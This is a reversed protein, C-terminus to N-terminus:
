DRNELGSGSSKWELLEENDERPQTSGTGSGKSILFHPLSPFPVRSRLIQLWFSQGSPWMPPLWPPSLPITNAPVSPLITPWMPFQTISKAIKCDDQPSIYGSGKCSFLTQRENQMVNWCTVMFSLAFIIWFALLASPICEHVFRPPFNHRSLYWWSERRRFLWEGDRDSLEFAVDGSGGNNRRV